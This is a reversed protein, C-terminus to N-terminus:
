PFFLKPTFCILSNTNERERRRGERRRSNTRKRSERSGKGAKETERGGGKRRKTRMEGGMGGKGADGGEM